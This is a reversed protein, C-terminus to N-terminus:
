GFTPPTNCGVQAISVYPNPYIMFGICFNKIRYKIALELRLSIFYMSLMKGLAVANVFNFTTPIRKMKSTFTYLEIVTKSPWLLVCSAMATTHKVFDSHGFLLNAKPM